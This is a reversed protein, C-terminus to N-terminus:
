MIFDYDDDYGIFNRWYLNKWIIFEWCIRNGRKDKRYVNSVKNIKDLDVGFFICM